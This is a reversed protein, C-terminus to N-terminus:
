DILHRKIYEENLETGLGPKSPVELLGESNPLIPDIQYAVRGKDLPTFVEVTLGNPVSAVCHVHAMNGIHAGVPMRYAEAM